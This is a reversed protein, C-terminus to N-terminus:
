AALSALAKKKLDDPAKQAHRDKAALGQAIVTINKKEIAYRMLARRFQAMTGFHHSITGVAIGGDNGVLPAIKDRSVHSYGISNALKLAADLIQKKRRAKDNIRTHAM